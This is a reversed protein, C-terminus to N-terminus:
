LRQDAGFILEAIQNAADMELGPISHMYVDQTFAVTSHGLRESMIKAPIGAALGLTAHTHRLDHLRIRPVQLKAVTRDFLQSFYDPNVPSGDLKAFVLGEDNYRDGVAQCESKQRRRHEQLVAVTAMDLSISRRGRATKPTGRTIVYNVQVITQRVALRKTSFDIDVWRLGLVEGRRMGTTVALFYAAGLRNSSIAELFVRVEEPNWTKMEASGSTRLRPPDAREAVNRNVLGKREADKLAKHLTTHVSRVTKPALGGSKDFRGSKLLRAYLQDLHDVTLKQLSIGGLEPIVHHKIMITYNFFTTPRLSMEMTPLWRETLYQAVTLPTPEVYDGKLVSGLQSTLYTQADAKTAFGGKTRQKRHGNGDLVYFYATWTQGRKRVFSGQM